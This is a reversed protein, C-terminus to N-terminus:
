ATPTAISASWCGRKIRRRLVCLKANEFCASDIILCSDSRTRETTDDVRMHVLFPGACLLLDVKFVPRLKNALKRCGIASTLKFCARVAQIVFEPPVSPVASVADFRSLSVGACARACCLCSCLACPLVPADQARPVSPMRASCRTTAGVRRSCADAFSFLVFSACGSSATFRWGWSGWASRRRRSATSRTTRSRGVAMQQQENAINVETHLEANGPIATAPFGQDVNELTATVQRM